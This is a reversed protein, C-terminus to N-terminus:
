YQTFLWGLTCKLNPVGMSRVFELCKKNKFADDKTGDIPIPFCEHVEDSCGDSGCVINEM